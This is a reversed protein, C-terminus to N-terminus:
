TDCHYKLATAYLSISYISLTQQLANVMNSEICIFVPFCYSAILDSIYGEKILYLDVRLACM